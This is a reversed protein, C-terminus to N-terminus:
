SLKRRLTGIVAIAGGLMALTSGGDPVGPGVFGSGTINGFYDNNARLSGGSEWIFNGNSDVDITVTPGAANGLLSTIPVNGGSITQDLQGGINAYEAMYGNGNLNYFAIAGILTTGTSNDIDVIGQGIQTPLLFTVASIGSNPDVMTTYSENYTSTTPGFPVTFLQVTAAGSGTFYLDQYDPGAGIDYGFATSCVCAAVSAALM